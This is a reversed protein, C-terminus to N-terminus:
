DDKPMLGKIQEPLEFTSRLIADLIATAQTLEEIRPSKLEHTAANGMFRFSHLAQAQAKNMIQQELLGEIKGRLNEETGGGPKPGGKIKLEACLGEILTRLCIAASLLNENYIASYVEKHIRRLSEPLHEFTEPHVGERAPFFSQRGLYDLYFAFDLGCRQCRMFRYILRQPKKLPEAHFPQVDIVDAQVDEFRTICRCANCFLSHPKAM